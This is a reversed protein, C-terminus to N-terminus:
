LCDKRSVLNGERNFLSATDGDNNWVARNNWYIANDTDNGSKGSILKVLSGSKLSFGAPFTFVYKAGNDEIKWGTLNQLSAGMNEIVVIEPKSKCDISTIQIDGSSSRDTASPIVSTAVPSSQSEVRVTTVSPPNDCTKLMNQLATWEANTASLGWDIKIQIWDIAYDCWHGENTPRWEEPGKAGKSRNASATVAILHDHDQVGNAYAAKKDKDWAWGGSNHANKLPVMHDIDLKTADTVVVGSYIAMWEGTAVQCQKDSKFTVTKL